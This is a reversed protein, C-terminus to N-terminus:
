RNHLWVWEKLTSETTTNVQENTFRWAWNSEASAPTNMRASEDLNLVDQLPLIVIKAVSAYAMKALVWHAEEESVTQGAYRNLLEKTQDDASRYWGRTTNNDHTGTYVVFNKSHNHPIHVSHPLDNGFAFQLVKMGPLSFEDRLAFVTDDVDGLDEAIFPLEGLENQVAAFFDKGPGQKWEGNRATSEGAPVEWYAAFARFHDIRIIDFLERNRKIRDIWWQYNNEKLVDWKFVPMGWLQGDASFADPPVGAIGTANGNEDIAFIEKNSWVDASDYSVYIPLDGILSINRENCYTKLEKWQKDFIFQLWKVRYIEDSHEDQLWALAKEDRLKFEDKWQFWPRGENVQKLVIFMAFDDLWYYEKNCFEDFAARDDKKIFSWFAKNLLEEKSRVVEAYNVKGDNVIMHSETEQYNLLQEKVLPDASILLTNGAMGSLASYPSHGQGGETPNLPLLQWYKQKSRYLFDAFAKAENGIDGIGYPSPLSSIHLLIGASRERVALKGKWIIFPTNVFANRIKLEGNQKEGAETFVDDWEANIDYPLAICTDKWDINLVDCNQEKCIVATHLPLAILYIDRRFKRAFVIINDKYTGETQLPIYEGQAFLEPQLKRLKFLQHILWLKIKGTHRDNWLKDFQEGTFSTVEKLWEKRQQYNVPRRNDPDVFSLDWLECGQYVDPVGPCTFKLILQSLSNIIGHDALQNHLDIFSAYFPTEKQILKNIFNKVATEYEKNPETWNSHTKAERLAKVLYENLRNELDTEDEGSFPYSGILSQYIFYEDNDDVIGKIDKNLERWENVKEFWIEPLDTLVNLRARVDEGRKTDHTSTANLSYPWKQQRDSMSHHFEDISIGFSSPQDGVENHGIFRNYTYMLTDEMGKAMLPGSFQMLRKYFHAARENRENDGQHPNHLLAQELVAVSQDLDPNQTKIKNFINQVAITEENNLPVINGYFRYVPCHILFEAIAEKLDDQRLKAFSRKNVLDSDKFLQYLNDLEGQMHNYLIHNKKNQTHLEVSSYDSTLQQYFDTFLQASNKQTFLNNILALFDYGTNGQIKWHSPLYEGPQLIKEVTIHTQEDALSRLQVLYKAPDYLGDIHDIRLGSIIKEELLQRIFEHYTNFVEDDQINLCILGNITFFRRYNIKVDTEKWCCLRYHQEELLQKLADDPIIENVPGSTNIPYYSDYYQIFTKGNDISLKLEKNAIAEDLSSALFPLMLKEKWDIDFFKAYKSEKGNKLVDMLWENKPHFGMHNPVIDQLWGIESIKLEDSIEKLQDYTGIEPNIRHPHLGDYGHTSGPVAEFVPSAYLMGIGLEKLYSLINKLDNFNFDKHFQLRYTAIPNIM